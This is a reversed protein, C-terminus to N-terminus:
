LYLPYFKKEFNNALMTKYEAYSDFRHCDHFRLVYNLWEKHLKNKMTTGIGSKDGSLWIATRKSCEIDIYDKAIKETFIDDPYFNSFRGSLTKLRNNVDTMHYFSICIIGHTEPVVFISGPNIGNHSIGISNLWTTFELMRNLIWNLHEQPLDPCLSLPVSYDNLIICLKDNEFYMKKPLYKSFHDNKFSLLLDYGDLSRQLVKCDGEITIKNDYYITIIGCDDDIKKGNELESIYSLLKETAQSAFPLNCRDPHISFLITKSSKKWDSLDSFVDRYSKSDIIKTILENVSDNM